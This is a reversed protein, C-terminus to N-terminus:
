PGAGSGFLFMQNPGALPRYNPNNPDDPNGMKDWDWEMFATCKPEDDIYQWEETYDPDKVNLAMTKAIIKCQKEGDPDPDDNRCRMCYTEIFWTNESGNSPQYKEITKQM